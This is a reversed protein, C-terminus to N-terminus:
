GKLERTLMREQDSLFGNRRLWQLKNKARTIQWQKQTRSAAKPVDKVKRSASEMNKAIAVKATHVSARISSPGTRNKNVRRRSSRWSAFSWRLFPRNARRPRLSHRWTVPDAESLPLHSEPTMPDIASYQPPQDASEAENVPRYVHSRPRYVPSQAHYVPIRSRNPRPRRRDLGEVAPPSAVDRPSSGENLFDSRGVAADSQLPPSTTQYQAPTPAPCTTWSPSGTRPYALPTQPLVPFLSHLELPVYPNHNTVSLSALSVCLNSDDIQRFGYKSESAPAPTVPSTWETFTNMLSSGWSADPEFANLLRAMDRIPSDFVLTAFFLLAFPEENVAIRPLYPHINLAFLPDDIYKTTTITQVRIVLSFRQSPIRLRTERLQFRAAKRLCIGLM